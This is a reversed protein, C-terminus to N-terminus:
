TPPVAGWVVDAGSSRRRSGRQSESPMRWATWSTRRTSWHTRSSSTNFTSKTASRCALSSSPGLSRTFTFLNRQRANGRKCSHLDDASVGERNVDCFPGLHCSVLAATALYEQDVAQGVKEVALGLQGGEVLSYGNWVGGLESMDQAREGWRKVVRRNVKEMTGSFHKEFKDTFAESDHFRQDPYKLPHTPSPTPLLHHAIYGSGSSGPSTPDRDSPSQPSSPQFTPNHSPTHLPNKPLLSVPPSNLVESQHYIM